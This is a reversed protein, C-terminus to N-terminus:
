VIETIKPMKGTWHGADSSGNSHFFGQCGLIPPAHGPEGTGPWVCIGTASSLEGPHGLFQLGNGSSLLWNSSHTAIGMPCLVAFFPICMWSSFCSQVGTPISKIPRRSAPPSVKFKELTHRSFFLHSLGHAKWPKIHQPLRMTPPRELRRPLNPIDFRVTFLTCHLMSIQHYKCKNLPILM